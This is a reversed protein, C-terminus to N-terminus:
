KVGQGQMLVEVPVGCAAISGLRTWESRIGSAQPFFFGAMLTGAPTVRSVHEPSETENRSIDGKYVPAM